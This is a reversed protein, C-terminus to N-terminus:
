KSPRVEETLLGGPCGLETLRKWLRGADDRFELRHHDYWMLHKRYREDWVLCMDSILMMFPEGKSAFALEYQRKGAPTVVERYNRHMQTYASLYGLGGPGYVNWHAPDFVYWPHQNGSVHLHCRGYQHGLVILCVTEKDDFGLRTFVGRIADITPKEKV